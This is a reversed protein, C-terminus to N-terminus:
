PQTYYGTRTHATLGPKALKIELQHYADRREAPPPDFSVEYYAATDEMCRELLSSVDNSGSLTLGGSQVALVQLALDGLEAQSPKTVGKLFGEYYNSREVGEGAGRPDIGYVTIRGRLLLTSLREIESFLQQQQKADLDVQPGSLFPWGPSVWLVIKRGPRAAEQTALVQLANLSLRLEDEAAFTSSRRISRLGIESNDLAASVENGDTSSSQQMQTGGDTFIALSTPHALRGGNARLFKDIEGREYAITEYTTNVADILLIVEIPASPGGLADFTAIPQAAKNDLVTFDQKQLGAVPTGSKPTVVVDLYIRNSDPQAPPAPQQGHVAATGAAFGLLVLAFRMSMSIPMSIPRSISLTGNLRPLPDPHYTQAIPGFLRSPAAQLTEAITAAIAGAGEGLVRAAGGWRFATAKWGVANVM